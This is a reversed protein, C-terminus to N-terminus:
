EVGTEDDLDDVDAETIVKAQEVFQVLTNNFSQLASASYYASERTKTEHPKSSVIKSMEETHLLNMVFQYVESNLIMEAGTGIQVLQEETLNHM